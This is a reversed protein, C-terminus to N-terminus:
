LQLMERFFFVRTILIIFKFLIYKLLIQFISEFILTLLIYRNVECFYYEFVINLISFIIGNRITLFFFFTKYLYKQLYYLLSINLM